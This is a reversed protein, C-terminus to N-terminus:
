SWTPDPSADFPSSKFPQANNGATAKAEAIVRQMYAEAAAIDNSTMGSPDSFEVGIITSSACSRNTVHLIAYGYGPIDYYFKKGNKGYAWCIDAVNQNSHVQVYEIKPSAYTRKM